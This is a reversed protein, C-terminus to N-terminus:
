GPASPDPEPPPMAAAGPFHERVLAAAREPTPTERSTIDVRQTMLGQLEAVARAGDIIVKPTGQEAALSIAHDLTAQLRDRLAAREEAPMRLSRSAEAANRQLEHLSIGWQLALDRVTKGTVWRGTAMLDAMHAIREDREPANGPKAQAQAQAIAAKSPRNRERGRVGTGKTGIM